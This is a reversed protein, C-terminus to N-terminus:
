GEIKRIDLLQIKCTYKYKKNLRWVKIIIIDENHVKGEYIFTKMKKDWQMQRAYNENQIKGRIQM